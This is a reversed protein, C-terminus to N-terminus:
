LERTRFSWVSLLLMAALWCFVWVLYANTPPASVFFPNATVGSPARAAALLVATPELSFVAGRWLGDTPLLLRSITGVNTLTANELAAGVSGVIGGIWALGFLVVAVAGATMPTFRTSLLMALTVGVIAEGCLFAFFELPRPPVYDAVARVVALELGSGVVAYAVMVAILGLWKGLLIQWRRVPRAVVAQLVGSEIEGSIAPSTIFVATMGLVFSFMFMLLILLQSVIVKVQADPIRSAAAQAVLRDFGWATLAAVAVVLIAVALLLRRRTAERVTLLAMTTM